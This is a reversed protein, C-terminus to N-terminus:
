SDRKFSEKIGKIQGIVDDLVAQYEVGVKLRLPVDYYGYGEYEAVSPYKDRLKDFDVPVNGDIWLWLPTDAGTSWLWYNVGLYFGGPVGTFRFYRGYGERQPTRRLNETTIGIERRGQRIVDDILDNIQRIRRSLSPALEEARIPLFAESDQQQALGRLQQIDSVVQSDGGVADSLRRLLQGWSVLTLSKDSDAIRAKRINPQTDVPEIEKGADRMQREIEAWLTILRSEPAIFLLVGPGEGDLQDLYGSAQGQLLTAWFKSEVLLRKAGAKDYGNMDPRSGDEYTVQTQFRVVPELGFGGDRLLANLAERCNESKNLIFALADTATDEIRNTIRPVLHALLTIEEAM